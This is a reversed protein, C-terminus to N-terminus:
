SRNPVYSPHFSSGPVPPRKNIIEYNGVSNVKVCFCRRNIADDDIDLVEWPQRNSTIIRPTGAPITANVYRCHIDRDEATDALHIQAERPWQTFAMDDFIIGEYRTSDYSKIADIHSAMLALPLLAKALATKGTATPGTLILTKTVDWNWDLNFDELDYLITLNRRKKANLNRRIAEGHILMDRASKPDNELLDTAERLDGGEALDKARIWVNENSDFSSLDMNTLYNEEKTCYAAWKKPNRTSQYNGKWTRGDHTLHLRDPNKLNVKRSLKLYVHLHDEGSAHKEQAVIYNAVPLTDCLKTLVLEKELPCQPYTLSLQTTNLRFTM